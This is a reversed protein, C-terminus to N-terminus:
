DNWPITYGLIYGARIMQQEFIVTYKSIVLISVLLVFYFSLCSKTSEAFDRWKWAVKVAVNKAYAENNEGDDRVHKHGHYGAGFM